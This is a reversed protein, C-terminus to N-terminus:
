INNTGLLRANGLADCLCNCKHVYMHIYQFIYMCVYLRLVCHRYVCLYKYSIRYIQIYKCIYMYKVLFEFRCVAIAIQQVCM